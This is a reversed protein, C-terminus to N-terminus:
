LVRLMGGLRQYEEFFTPYSKNVAQAGTITVPGTCGTAAIAAAMVIRHDGAGDVTGGSLVPVGHFILADPLTEVQGGLARVMAATSEIRDSEKLRLRGIGSFCATGSRVAAMVALPPVLDPCDSLVLETDGNQALQNSFSIVQRDGQASGFDLGDIQLASDLFNAAYWFAAQSWDGEAAAQAPTYHQNGPIFLGSHDPLWRVEVRFRRLVSLTMEVYSESELPTTLRIESNGWLLPLALLLGTVFQSSVNGPLTYLGPALNGTVEIKGDLRRFDVGQEQFISEYPGLPRELLRGHGTFRAGGRLVLSLPLLFRLTSGSEGCDLLPSDVPSFLASLCRWTADLDESQALNRIYCGEGALAAGILLRHSQSKSPPVTVSGSLLAPTLQIDM